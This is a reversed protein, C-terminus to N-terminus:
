GSQVDFKSADALLYINEDRECMGVIRAFNGSLDTIRGYYEEGQATGTKKVETNETEDKEATKKVEANETEIKDKQATEKACAMFIGTVLLLSVCLFIMKLKYKEM